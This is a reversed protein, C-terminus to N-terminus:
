VEGGLRRILDDIDCSRWAVRHGGLSYGKPYIGKKVGDYWTTRSVPILRLVEQLKLFHYAPRTTTNEAPQHVDAALREIGQVYSTRHAQNKM